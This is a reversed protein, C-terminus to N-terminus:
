ILKYHIDLVQKLLLNNNNFIIFDSQKIKEEDTIQNNIRELVQERKVMDRQIIREIRTEIEATVTIIKDFFHTQNNEFLIAAEQIVYPSKQNDVWRNFDKRVKPHVLENVKKLAFNDNFIIEALKKRHIIGNPQYIDNGFLEKFSYILEIDNNILYKAQTDAYYVPISLKEFISCVFTKGSGIGGTLGVKLM